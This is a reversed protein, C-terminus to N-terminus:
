TTSAGLKAMDLVGLQQLAGLRDTEAWHEVIKGDAIRHIAIGTSTFRRGTPPVGFREGTQTGVATVRSVVLDGEAIM